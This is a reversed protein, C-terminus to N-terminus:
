KKVETSPVLTAVTRNDATFYKQAVSQVDASTVAELERELSDLRRYGGEVIETRGLMDARGAITKGERYSTMLIQNKAKQLEQESVPATQLKAIEESVATESRSPEIGSRLEM